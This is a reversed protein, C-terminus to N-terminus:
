RSTNLSWNVWEALYGSVYLSRTIDMRSGTLTASITIERFVSGTETEQRTRTSLNLSKGDDSVDINTNKYLPFSIFGSQSTGEAKIYENAEIKLENDIQFTDPQQQIDTLEVNVTEARQNDVTGFCSTYSGTGGTFRTDRLQTFLDLQELLDQQVTKTNEAGDVSYDVDYYSDGMASLQPSVAGCQSAHATGSIAAVLLFLFLEACKASICRRSKMLM